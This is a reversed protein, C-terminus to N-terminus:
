RTPVRRQLCDENFTGDKKFLFTYKGRRIAERTAGDIGDLHGECASEMLEGFVEASVEDMEVRDPLAVKITCEGTNANAETMYAPRRKLHLNIVSFHALVERLQVGAVQGGRIREGIPMFPQMCGCSDNLVAVVAIDEIRILAVQAPYQCSFDFSEEMETKKVEFLAMSGLVSSEISTGSYVARALTHMHHLEEWTYLSGIKTDEARLDRNLRLLRDRYHSKFVTLCLWLFVTFYTDSNQGIRDHFAKFGNLMLEQMPQELKTNLLGNCDACCPVVNQRYRLGTGNSININRNYLGYKRLIWQPIVHEDNFPKSNPAAGCVFCCNGLCIDRKFRDLSFFLIKGNKDLYSGDETKFVQRTKKSPWKMQQRALEM